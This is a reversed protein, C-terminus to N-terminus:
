NLRRKQKSKRTRRKGGYPDFEGTNDNVNLSCRAIQQRQALTLNECALKTLPPIKSAKRKKREETMKKIKEINKYKYDKIKNKTVIYHEIAFPIGGQEQDNEEKEEALRLEENTSPDLVIIIDPHDLLLEVMYYKTDYTTNDTTIACILPTHGAYNKANVEIGPQDLLLKVMNYKTEDIIDDDIIDDDIRYDTKIAHILPTDGADNKANVNAGNNLANEVENINGIKITDFLFKDKEEPNGGRQRKSRTKRFRKNTRKVRKKLKHAKKTYKNKRTGGGNMNSIKKTKTM